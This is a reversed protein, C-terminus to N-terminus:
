KYFFLDTKGGPKLPDEVDHTLMVLRSLNRKLKRGQKEIRNKFYKMFAHASCNTLYNMNYKTNYVNDKLRNDNKMDSKWKQVFSDKLLQLKSEDNNALKLIQAYYVDINWATMDEAHDWAPTTKIFEEYENTDTLDVNNDSVYEWTEQSMANVEHEESYYLLDTFNLWKEFLETSIVDTDPNKVKVTGIAADIKNEVNKDFGIRKFYEYGHNLEHSVTSKLDTFLELADDSETDFSSAVAIGIELKISLSKDKFPHIPEVIHSYLKSNNKKSIHHMAGMTLGTGHIDKDSGKDIRLKINFERVPYEKWMDKYAQPLHPKLMKWTIHLKKILVKRPNEEMFKEFENWIIDALADKFIISQKSVGLRENTAYEEWKKIM